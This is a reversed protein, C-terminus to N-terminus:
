DTKYKRSKLSSKFGLTSLIIYAIVGVHFFGNKDWDGVKLQTAQVLVAALGVLDSLVYWIYGSGRTCVHVFHSLGMYSGFLIVFLGIFIFKDYHWCLIIDIYAGLMICPGAIMFTIFGCEWFTELFRIALAIILIVYLAYWLGEKIDGSLDLGHVIFGLGAGVAMVLYFLRMLTKQVWCKFGNSRFGFSAFLMIICTATIGLNTYGTIRESPNPNLTFDKMGDIFSTTASTIKEVRSSAFSYPNLAFEVIKISRFLM